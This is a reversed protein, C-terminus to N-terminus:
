QDRSDTIMSLLFQTADLISLINKKVSFSVKRDSTEANSGEEPNYMNNGTTHFGFCITLARSSTCLFSFDRNIGLAALTKYKFIHRMDERQQLDRQVLGSKVVAVRIDPPLHGLANFHQAM